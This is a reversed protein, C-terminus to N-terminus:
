YLESPPSSVANVLNNVEVYGDTRMKIGERQTGHRLHWSLTKSIRVDLPDRPDIQFKLESKRTQNRKKHQYASATKGFTEKAKGKGPRHKRSPNSSKVDPNPNSSTSTGSLSLPALSVALTSLQGQNKPLRFAPTNSSVLMLLNFSAM